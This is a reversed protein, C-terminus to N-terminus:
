QLGWKESIEAMTGDAIIKRKGSDFINLIGEVKSNNKAGALYEMTSGFALLKRYSTPWNENKLTSDVIIEYGAFGDISENDLMQLAQIISDVEIKDIYNADDWESGYDWGRM